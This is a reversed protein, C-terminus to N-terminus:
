WHYHDWHGTNQFHYHGPVYDFHDYHAVYGGPHYDWHSTDHWVHGGYYVNSYYPGHGGFCHAEAPSSLAGFLAMTAFVVCILILKKM